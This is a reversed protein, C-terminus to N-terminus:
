KIENNSTMGNLDTERKQISRRLSTHEDLDIKTSQGIMTSKHGDEHRHNEGSQTEM